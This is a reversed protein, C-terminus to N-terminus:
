FPLLAGLNIGPWKGGWKERMHMLGIEKRLVLSMRTSKEKAYFAVAGREIRAMGCGGLGALFNFHALTLAVSRFGGETELKKLPVLSFLVVLSM